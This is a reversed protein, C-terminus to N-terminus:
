GVAQHESFKWFRMLVSVGCGGCLDMNHEVLTEGVIAWQLTGWYGCVTELNWGGGLSQGGLTIQKGLNRGEM